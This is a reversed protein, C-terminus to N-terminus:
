PFNSLETQEIEPEHEQLKALQEATFEDISEEIGELVYLIMETKVRLKNIKLRPRSKESLGIVNTLVAFKEFLPCPKITDAEIMALGSDPDLEIYAIIKEQM